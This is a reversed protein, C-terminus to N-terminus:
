IKPLIEDFLDSFAQVARTYRTLLTSDTVLQSQDPEGTPLRQALQGLGLLRLWKPSIGTALGHYGYGMLRIAAHTQVATAPPYFGAITVCEGRTPHINPSLDYTPPLGDLELLYRDFEGEVAHLSQGQKELVDACSEELVWHVLLGLAYVRAGQTAATAYANQLWERGPLRRYRQALAATTRRFLLGQCDFIAGGYLGMDYLRRFRGVDQRLKPPLQQLVQRGFRYHAYVGPM